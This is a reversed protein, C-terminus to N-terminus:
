EQLTVLKHKLQKIQEQKQGYETFASVIIEDDEFRPRAAYKKDLIYIKEVDAFSVKIKNIEQDIVIGLGYKDTSVQVGVLSIESYEDCSSELDDIEHEIAAIKELRETELRKSEEFSLPEATTNKRVKKEKMPLALSNYYHYAYCCRIIDFALLHLSRDKYHEETLLNFHKELLTDHEKLAEVIKDCMRYYNPLSFNEGSGISLGLDLYKAMSLAESAKFVYNFDPDNMALYVSASHRDQKYSWNGPYYKCRLNEYEVLFRDMNDQVISVDGQADAFLVESFLREITEPEKGWLKIVGSSPHVRSNDTFLLFERKAASFRDAFTDFDSTPRFWEDRWVRMARWKFLEDHEDNYLTEINEEYQNILKHLNDINM